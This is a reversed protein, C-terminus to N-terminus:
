KESVNDRYWLPRFTVIYAYIVKFKYIEQRYRQLVPKYWPWMVACKTCLLHVFEHKLFPVGIVSCHTGDSGCAGELVLKEKVFGESACTIYCIVYFSCLMYGFEARECYHHRRGGLQQRWLVVSHECEWCYPTQGGTFSTRRSSLTQSVSCLRIGPALSVVWRNIDGLAETSSVLKKRNRVHLFWSSVCSDAIETKLFGVALKLSCLFWLHFHQM